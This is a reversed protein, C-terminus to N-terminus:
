TRTLSPNMSISGIGPNSSYCGSGKVNVENELAKVCVKNPILGARTKHLTAGLGRVVRNGTISLYNEPANGLVVGPFPQVSAGAVAVDM